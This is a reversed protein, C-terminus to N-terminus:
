SRSQFINRLIEIVAHRIHRMKWCYIVPNLSSNIRLLTKFYLLPGNLAASPGSIQLVFSLCYEPMCCILFVLYVYFSSLAYKRQMASHTIEGNEEVQQVQLAQIQITHRRVAFYIRCYVLTTCIFCLGLVIRIVVRAIKVSIWLYVIPLFARLVWIAIVVAVVRKHTVLEQYRLHLHIALFRDVSIAVVSFFSANVFILAVFVYVNHVSYFANHKTNQQLQIIVKALYLPQVLLGVALDSVALSLLLTKLPKPLSSTKRMAYFTLSNLVIATYSSFANFACNAIFSSYLPDAENMINCSSQLFASGINGPSQQLSITDYASSLM